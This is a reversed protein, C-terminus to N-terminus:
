TPNEWNRVPLTLSRSLEGAFFLLRLDRVPDGRLLL